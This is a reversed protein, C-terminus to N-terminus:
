STIPCFLTNTAAVFVQRTGSLIFQYNESFYNSCHELLITQTKYYISVNKGDILLEGVCDEVLKYINFVLGVYIFLM